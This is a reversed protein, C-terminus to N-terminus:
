ELLQTTKRFEEMRIDAWEIMYSVDKDISNLFSHLGVEKHLLGRLLHALSFKENYYEKAFSQSVQIATKLSDSFSLTM